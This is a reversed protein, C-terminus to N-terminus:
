LDTSESTRSFSGSLSRVISSVRYTHKPAAKLLPPYCIITSAIVDLEVWSRYFVDTRRCTVRVRMQEADVVAWSASRKIDEFQNNRSQLSCDSWRRTLRQDWCNYMLKCTAQWAIKSFWIPLAPKAIMEIVLTWARMPGLCGPVGVRYRTEQSTTM